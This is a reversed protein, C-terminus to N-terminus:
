HLKVNTSQTFNFGRCKALMRPYRRIVLRPRMTHKLGIVNTRTSRDLLSFFKIQNTYLVM